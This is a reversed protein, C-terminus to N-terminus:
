VAEAQVDQIENEDTGRDKTQLRARKALFATWDCM